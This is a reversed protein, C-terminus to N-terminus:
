MFFLNILCLKIFCSKRLFIAVSANEECNESKFFIQINDLNNEYFYLNFDKFQPIIILDLFKGFIQNPNLNKTYIYSPLNKLSLQYLINVFIKFNSKNLIKNKKLLLELDSRNLNILKIFLKYDKAFKFLKAM